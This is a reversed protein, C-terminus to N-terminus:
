VTELIVMSIGHNKYDCAMGFVSGARSLVDMIM